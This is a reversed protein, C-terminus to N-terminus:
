KEQTTGPQKQEHSPAYRAEPTPGGSFVNAKHAWPGSPGSSACYIDGNATVVVYTSYQQSAIGVVPNATAQATAATAGLHYAIALMFVAASGYFFRKMM